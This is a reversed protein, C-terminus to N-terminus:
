AAEPTDTAPADDPTVADAYSVWAQHAARRRAPIHVFQYTIRGFTRAAVYHGGDGTDDRVPVGLSAAVQDVAAREGADTGRTTYDSLDWGYENVPIDPHQDLYDALRRLGDIVQARALLDGPIQQDTM